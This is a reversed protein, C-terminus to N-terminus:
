WIQLTLHRHLQLQQESHQPRKPYTRTNKKLKADDQSQKSWDFVLARARWSGTVVRERLPKLMM